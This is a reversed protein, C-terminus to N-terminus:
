TNPKTTELLDVVVKARATFDHKQAYTRTKLTLEQLNQLASQVTDNLQQQQFPEPLAMHAAEQVYNAFGCAGSCIVPIGAAIAEVLVSGAAEQRAPHVMIDAALLLNPVDTRRGLLQIQGPYRTYQLLKTNGDGVLLVKCSKRLDDPLNDFAALTRDAGKLALNAGVTIIAIDDPQLGLKKRMDNRIATAREEPPRVCDPNMGPPLLHFRQPQTNYHKIFAQRQQQSIFMIQTKSSTTFVSHEMDLLARYRPHLKLTLPAHKTPLFQALCDDASFYWDFGPMRNFAVTADFDANDKIAQVKHAFAIIKGHNSFARVPIITLNFDSTEPMPGEWQTTVVTVHHKRRLAEKLIRLMDNQLGGFPFYKFITFLLNM